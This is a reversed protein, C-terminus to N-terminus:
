LQLISNLKSVAQGSINKRFDCLVGDRVAEEYSYLSTPIGDECEFFRFTDREVMDAPTATL